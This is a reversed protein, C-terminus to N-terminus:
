QLGRFKLFQNYDRIYDDEEYVRDCFVTLVTPEELYEQTAWISPPILLGQNNNSLQIIKTGIGDDCIVNCSGMNCVLVQHCKKHAHKGRVVAIEASVMFVRKISFPIDGEQFITLSVSSNAHRPFTLFVIDQLSKM